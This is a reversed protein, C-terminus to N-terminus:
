EEVLKSQNKLALRFRPASGVGGVCILVKKNAAHATAVLNTRYTPRLVNMELNLTADANPIAAFHIIHTLAGFEISAPPLDDQHYGAYYATVWSESHVVIRSYAIICLASLSLITWRSIRYAAAVTRGFCQKCKGRRIISITKM